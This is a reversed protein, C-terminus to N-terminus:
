DLDGKSPTNNIIREPKLINGASKVANISNTKADM